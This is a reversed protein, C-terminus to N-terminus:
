KIKKAKKIINMAKEGYIINSYELFQSFKNIDVGKIICYYKNNYYYKEINSGLIKLYDYDCVEYLVVPNHNLIIRMDIINDEFENDDYFKELEIIVGYINDIYVRVNYDGSIKYNYFKKLNIIVTRFYEEVKRPEDFQIDGMISKNIYVTTKKSDNVEIKVIGGLMNYSFAFM